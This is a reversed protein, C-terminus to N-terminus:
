GTEGSGSSRWQERVIASVPVLTFGRSALGALWSGLQEITADHPHGIAIASGHRRAIEEVEVLRAAIAGANIENDLFVDRAAHPVGVRRALEVGASDGVTRSDLFLLGRARLEEMVPTMSAADRTFRSGMHNNIGVYGTFRDLDWRLRRLLEDPGLSVALGNPGMDEARSLPEMPVHVLLEHGARRAEGTLRPLDSAYALFSLTLPGPLVITRETRRKDLGLDDIVVAIRPRRDLAPAPVAFRLWAPEARRAQAPPPPPLAALRIEPAPAPEPVEATDVPDPATMESQEEAAADDSPPPPLTALPAFVMPSPVTAPAIAAQWARPRPPLALWTAGSVILLSVLGCGINIWLRARPLPLKGIHLRLVPFDLEPLQLAPRRRVTPQPRRALPAAAAASALVPRHLLAASERLERLKEDM